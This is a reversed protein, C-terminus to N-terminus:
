ATGLIQRKARETARRERVPGKVHRWCRARAGVTVDEGRCRKAANAGLGDCQVDCTCTSYRGALVSEDSMRWSVASIWSVPSGRSANRDFARVRAAGQRM